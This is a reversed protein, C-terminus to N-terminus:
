AKDRLKEIERDVNVSMYKYFTSRAIRYKPYIIDLYALEHPYGKKFAEIAEKQISAILRLKHIKCYSM